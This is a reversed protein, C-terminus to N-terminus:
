NRKNRSHIREGCVSIVAVHFSVSGVPFPEHGLLAVHEQEARENELPVRFHRSLHRDTPDDPADATASEDNIAVPRFNRQRVCTM